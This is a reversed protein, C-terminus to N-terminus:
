LRLRLRAATCKVITVVMAAIVWINLAKQVLRLQLQFAAELLKHGLLQWLMLVKLLQDM